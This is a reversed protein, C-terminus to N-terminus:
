LRNPLQYRWIGPHIEQGAYRTRGTGSGDALAQLLAADTVPPAGKELLAVVRAREPALYTQAVRQLDATTARRVADLYATETEIGGGISEYYGLNNAQGEMTEREHVKSALLNVRARDLEADSPGLDRLRHVETAIARVSADLKDPELAADVMFLGADLPTYSSAGISHVLQQRDKVNRYLRSSDGGGLVGSLLDLYPTDAERFGTIKYAVGLLTQQFDSPLVRAVAQQPEPEVSRAHELKRDPRADAFAQRIQALAREPAIDGVVVFTMNNPVYWHHFFQLLGDRTFSRVSAETGIVPLRYPHVGYAAEFVAQSLARGPSDNSRRIEEIVVEEERALEHPEFSSHQLADALVDIGVSADRSAMTAFYSTVDFSTFANINGGSGEITAAIEGVGRRDTGKFLMHEFVHAMGAQEPREDASGVRVWVMLAVVPASHDEVIAVRLGNDLTTRTLGEMAGNGRSGSWPWTGAACAGLALAAAIAAPIRIM